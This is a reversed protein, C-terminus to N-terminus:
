GDEEVREGEEAAGTGEGEGENRATHEQLKEVVLDRGHRKAKMEVAISLEKNKRKAKFRRKFRGM